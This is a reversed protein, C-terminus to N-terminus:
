EIRIGMKSLEKKYYERTQPNPYLFRTYARWSEDKRIYTSSKCKPCARKAYVAALAAEIGDPKKVYVYMRREGDSTFSGAYISETKAAITAVVEATLADLRAIDTELPLGDGFLQTPYSTGTSVLLPYDAYPANKALALNIKIEGPSKKNNYAAFYSWWLDAALAPLPFILSLILGLVCALTIPRFPNM